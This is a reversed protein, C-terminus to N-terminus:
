PTGTTPVNVSKPFISSWVCASWTTMAMGDAGPRTTRRTAVAQWDRLTGKLREVQAPSTFVRLAQPHEQVRGYFHDAIQAFHPSAKQCFARLAAEDDPGFRVYRKLEQFVTETM